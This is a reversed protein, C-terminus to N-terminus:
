SLGDIFHTQFDEWVEPGFDELIHDKLDGGDQLVVHAYEPMHTRLSTAFFDRLRSFENKLWESYREAMIMFQTERIWNSPEILYIWGDSYPSTNIASSDALLSENQSRIIGSVPSHISLQKGNQVISFIKEGKKVTDGPFKMKVRSVTGAVHQMFDDLGIRVNGDLEMFAWTHSKDFYLGKPFDLSRENFFSPGSAIRESASIRAPRIFRYLFAILIGGAFIIVLILMATGM